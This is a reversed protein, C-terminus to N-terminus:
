KAGSNGKGPQKGARPPAGDVYGLARLQEWTKRDVPVDSGTRHGAEYSAIALSERGVQAAVEPIVRGTMDRAVPLGLLYLVTPTVDDIH